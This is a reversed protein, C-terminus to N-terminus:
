SAGGYRCLFGPIIAVWVLFDPLGRIKKPQYITAALIMVL